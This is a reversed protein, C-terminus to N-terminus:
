LAIRHRRFSWSAKDNRPVGVCKLVESHILGLVLKAKKTNRTRKRLRRITALSGAFFFFFWSFPQPQTSAASCGCESQVVDPEPESGEGADVLADGGGVVQFGADRQGADDQSEGADDRLGADFRRGADTSGADLFAAGADFRGADPRGADVNEGADARGADVNEGADSRGSDIVDAGADRLAVGSDVDLDPRASYAGCAPASADGQRALIWAGPGFGVMPTSGRYDANDRDFLEAFQFSNARAQAEVWQLLLNARGDHGSARLAAALRLDVFVWEQSDYDGGDDNRM